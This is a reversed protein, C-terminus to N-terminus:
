VEGCDVRGGNEGEDGCSGDGRAFQCCGHMALSGLMALGSSCVRDSLPLAQTAGRFGADQRGVVVRRGGSFRQNLCDRESYDTRTTTAVWGQQGLRAITDKAPQPQLVAPTRRANNVPRIARAKQATPLLPYKKLLGLKRQSHNHVEILRHPRINIFLLIPLNNPLYIRQQHLEDADFPMGSGRRDGRKRRCKGRLPWRSDTAPQLTLVTVLLLLTSPPLPTVMSIGM